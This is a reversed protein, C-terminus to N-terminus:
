GMEPIICQMGFDIARNYHVTYASHSASSLSARRSPGWHCSLTTCHLLRPQPITADTTRSCLSVTLHHPTANDSETQCLKDSPPTSPTQSMAEHTHSRQQLGATNPPQANSSLPRHIGVVFITHDACQVSNVSRPASCGGSWIM